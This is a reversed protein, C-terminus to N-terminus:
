GHICLYRLLRLIQYAIPGRLRPIFPKFWVVCLFLLYVCYFLVSLYSLSSYLCVNVYCLEVCVCVYLYVSLCLYVSM